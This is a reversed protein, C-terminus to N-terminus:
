SQALFPSFVGALFALVACSGSLTAAEYNRLLVLFPIDYHVACRHPPDFIKKVRKAKRYINTPLIYSNLLYRRIGISSDYRYKSLLYYYRLVAPFSTTYHLLYKGDLM